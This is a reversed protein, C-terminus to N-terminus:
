GQKVRQTASAALDEVVSCTADAPPVEVDAPLPHVNVDAHGIRLLAKRSRAAEVYGGALDAQTTDASIAFVFRPVARSQRDHHVSRWSLIVSRATQPRLPIGFSPTKRLGPQARAPPKRWNGKRRSNQLTTQEAPRNKRNKLPDRVAIPRSIKRSYGFGSTQVVLM